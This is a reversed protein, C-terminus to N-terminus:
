STSGASAPGSSTQDRRTGGSPLVGQPRTAELAAHLRSEPPGLGETMDDPQDQVGSVPRPSQAAAGAPGYAATGGGLAAVSVFVALKRKIHRM